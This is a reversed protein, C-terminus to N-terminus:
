VSFWVLVTGDGASGDTDTLTALVTTDATMSANPYAVYAGASAETIAATAMYTDLAGSKGINLAAGTGNFGTRVGVEIKEIVAGNPVVGVTNTGSKFAIVKKLCRMIKAGGTEQKTLKM